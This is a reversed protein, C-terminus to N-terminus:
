LKNYRSSCSVQAVQGLARPVSCQAESVTGTRQGESDSSWRNM